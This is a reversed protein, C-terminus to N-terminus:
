DKESSFYDDIKQRNEKIFDNNKEKDFRQMAGQVIDEVVDASKIERTHIDMEVSTFGIANLAIMYGINYMITYEAFLEELKCTQGTEKIKSCLYILVAGVNSNVDNFHSIFDKKFQRVSVAKFRESEGNTQYDKVTGLERKVEVIAELIRQINGDLNKATEDYLKSAASVQLAADKMDKASEMADNASTQLSESTQTLKDIRVATQSNIVFSYIITIVALIISVLASALSMFDLVKKDSFFAYSFIVVAILVVISSLFIYSGLCSSNETDEMKLEKKRSEVKHIRFASVAVICLIIITSCIIISQLISHTLIENM